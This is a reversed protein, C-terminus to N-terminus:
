PIARLIRLLSGTVIQGALVLCQLQGPKRLTTIGAALALMGAASLWNPDSRTFTTRYADILFTPSDVERLIFCGALLLSVHASM